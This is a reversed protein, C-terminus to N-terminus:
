SAQEAFDIKQGQKLTVIAKKWDSRLGGGKGFRRFKGRVRMTRVDQVRVKFLEEIARKIDPKTADLSAEFAYQNFKEKLITSRETLLPRVVTRYTERM